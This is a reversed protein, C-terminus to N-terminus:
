MINSLIYKTDQYKFHYFHGGKMTTMKEWKILKAKEGQGGTKQGLALYGIIVRAITFPSQNIVKVKRIIHKSYANICQNLM